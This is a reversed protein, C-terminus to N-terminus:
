KEEEKIPLAPSPLLSPKCREWTEKLNGDAIDDVYSSPPNPRNFYGIVFAREVYAAIEEGEISSPSEVTLFKEKVQRLLNIRGTWYNDSAKGRDSEGKARPECFEMEEDLWEIFQLNTM